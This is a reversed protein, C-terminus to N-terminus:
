HRSYLWITQSPLCSGHYQPDQVFVHYLSYMSNRIFMWLTRPLISLKLVITEIISIPNKDGSTKFIACSEINLSEAVNDVTIRAYKGMQVM